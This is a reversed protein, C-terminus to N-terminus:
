LLPEKCLLRKYIYEIDRFLRRKSFENKMRERGYRGMSMAIDPNSLLNLLADAFKDIDHSLILFGSRGDEVV